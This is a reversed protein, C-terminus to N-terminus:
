PAHPFDPAHGAGPMNLPIPDGHAHIEVHALGGEM